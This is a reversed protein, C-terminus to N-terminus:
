RKGYRRIRKNFNNIATLLHIKSFDPWYVKTFHLESYAIQWLMFNSLRLDGATRILLDPDPIEPHYLHKSFYDEDIQSLDIEKSVVKSAISKAANVIEQRSGYSLAVILTIKNCGKTEEQIKYIKNRISERVISLDGSIVVKVGKDIFSKSKKDLYEELLDMLFDVEERPRCWNETSFAYVTIFEVGLTICENVIKYLNEAGSKHGFGVALGMARAWRANGDMIIALHRPVVSPTKAFLLRIRDVLGQVSLLSMIASFKVGFGM